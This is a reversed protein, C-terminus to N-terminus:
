VVVSGDPVHLLGIAVPQVDLALSEFREAAVHGVRYCIQELAFATARVFSVNFEDRVRGGAGSGGHPIKALGHAVFQAFSPPAKRTVALGAM